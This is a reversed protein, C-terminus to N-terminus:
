RLLFADDSRILTYKEGYKKLFAERLDDIAKLRENNDSPENLEKVAIELLEPSLTCEYRNGSM